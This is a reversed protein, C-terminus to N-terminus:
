TTPFPPLPPWGFFTALWAYLVPGYTMVLKIVKQWDIATLTEGKEVKTMIEDLTKDGQRAAGLVASAQVKSVM